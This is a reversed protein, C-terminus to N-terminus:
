ETLTPFWQYYRIVGGGEGGGGGLCEGEEEEGEEEGEDGEDGEESEQYPKILQVGKAKALEPNNAFEEAVDGMVVSQVYGKKVM